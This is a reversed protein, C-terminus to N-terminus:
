QKHADCLNQDGICRLKTSRGVLPSISKMRLLLLLWSTTSIRGFRLMTLSRLRTIESWCRMPHVVRVCQFVPGSKRACCRFILSFVSLYVTLTWHPFAFTLFFFSLFCLFRWFFAFKVLFICGSTYELVQCCFFPEGHFCHM